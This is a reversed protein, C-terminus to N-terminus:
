PGVRREVGSFFYLDRDYMKYCNPCKLRVKVREGVAPDLVVHFGGEYGCSACHTLSESSAKDQKGAEATMDDLRDGTVASTAAM